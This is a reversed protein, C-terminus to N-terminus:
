LSILSPTQNRLMDIKIETNLTTRTMEKVCSVTIHEDGQFYHGTLSARGGVVPLPGESWSDDTTIIIHRSEEGLDSKIARGITRWGSKKMLSPPPIRTWGGPFPPKVPKKPPRM